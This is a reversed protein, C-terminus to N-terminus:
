ILHLLKKDLIIMKNKEIKNQFLLNYLIKIIKLEEM